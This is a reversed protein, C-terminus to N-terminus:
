SEEMVREPARAFDQFSLATDTVQATGFFRSYRSLEDAVLAGAKLPYSNVLAVMLPRAETDRNLQARKVLYKVHMDADPLSYGCFIILDADQIAKFARNWVVSLHVNSIDKYYSPPVIVPTRLTECSSCRAADPEDILRTVGTSGYTIDLINCVPCLLWNLSGHLKYCPFQRSEAHANPTSAVLGSLGYDVISGIGRGVAIAEADLADDLLTDYNTTIFMVDQLLDRDRLARVLQAHETVISSSERAITAALALILQRRLHRLDGLAEREGIGLIGEERLIALELVGLAEEFTPLVGGAHDRPDVSFVRQFFGAVDDALSHRSAPVAARRFFESFLETQLPAGDAKGAGAGTFIVVKV